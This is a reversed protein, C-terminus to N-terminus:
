NKLLEIHSKEYYWGNNGNNIDCINKFVYDYQKAVNYMNYLKSSRDHIYQRDFKEDLAMQVATCFDALTHCLMGTKFQEITETFAGIDNTIVPTGCLQAEVNVGCFPEIYISPAILAVLDRLFEGRELGDLPPRYVINSSQTLYDSPDGQGCLIFEIDLFKKAIECFINCGKINCLRGFFGIRKKNPYLNLPWEIINYYNPIVFWYHQCQKQEKNMTSHLIAYSEFIRFDKYSNSYGIGSEVSIFNLDRIADEHARGFPLCIIDTACSRYNEKLAKNLRKNFEKYLPTDWNALDGIFTKKDKLKEKIEEVTLTQHLFKYSEIRLSEWENYKLLEIDKTANVQSGEIGYHYVEYDRSIMMEPFRLVKGTFACHSYSNNTITHPIAPIHLRIM